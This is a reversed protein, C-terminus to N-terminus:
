RGGFVAPLPRELAAALRDLYVSRPVDIAGLSVLHETTWQVDLLGGGGDSLTEVLQVLAVKSADTALHFMSEGAFLGGIALGYLGGVLKGDPTWTEISHAWGLSHLRRYADTISGDIWGNPRKPDACATIVQDFATDIRVEYLACSKRLSRSM